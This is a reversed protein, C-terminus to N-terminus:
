PNMELLRRRLRTSNIYLQEWLSATEDAQAPRELAPRTPPLGSKATSPPPEPEPEYIEGDITPCIRWQGDECADNCFDGAGRPLRAFCYRCSRPM